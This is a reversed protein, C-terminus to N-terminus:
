KEAWLQARIASCRAASRGPCTAATTDRPPRGSRASLESGNTMAGVNNKTPLASLSTSANFREASEISVVGDRVDRLVSQVVLRGRELYSVSAAEVVVESGDLCRLRREEFATVGPGAALYALREAFREEQKAQDVTLWYKFLLVGDDVLLRESDGPTRLLAPEVHLVELDPLRMALFQATTLAVVQDSSLAL